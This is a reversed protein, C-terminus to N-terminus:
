KLAQLEPITDLINEKRISDLDHTKRWFSDILHTNDTAQMYNVASEFGVTARQLQDLPRLWALHDQYRQNIQQKYEAPAIDLRFHAPDQLINVNLDQPKIYGKEVWARHFDPLHLANMISLTPSIYFDVNPCVALMQERNREVQAWDTGKRIYEALVWPM